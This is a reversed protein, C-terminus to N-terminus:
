GDFVDDPVFVADSPMARVLYDPCGADLDREIALSAPDSLDARVGFCTYIQGPGTYPNGNDSPASRREGSSIFVSFSLLAGDSRVDTVALIGDSADRGSPGALGAVYSEVDEAQLLEHWFPDERAAVQNWLVSDMGSPSDFAPGCGTLCAGATVLVAVVIAERPPQM